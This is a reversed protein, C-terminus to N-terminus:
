SCAKATRADYVARGDSVSNMNLRVLSQSIYGYGGYASKNMNNKDGWVSEGDAM